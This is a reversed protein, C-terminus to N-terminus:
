RIPQELRTSDFVQGAVYPRGKWTAPRGALNRAFAYWQITLLVLIGLPHLLHRSPVPSLPPRRGAAPLLVGGGGPGVPRDGVLALGEPDVGTRRGPPDDAVGPGRPPGDVDARDPRRPWAEGANKALGNWVAGATRYMRCVALDTADFLDTRLGALRYERPLKLGDHLTSRIAAHGGAREYADRRTIFLQGCGAAFGPHLSRRMRHIPLFGLLIFHILPIVLKELLGVTEQRSGAPSTPARPTSIPRWGRWPTPRSGCTPM